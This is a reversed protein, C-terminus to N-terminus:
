PIFGTNGTILIEESNNLILTIDSSGPSGWSDFSVTTAGSTLAVGSPFSHSSDGEPLNRATSDRFLTYGSSTLTIKWPVNDNMARAQAYRLNNKLMDVEATLRNRTISTTQSLVVAGVITVIILVAIIEVLTFGHNDTRNGPLPAM